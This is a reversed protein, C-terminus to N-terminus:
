GGQGHGEHRASAWGQSGSHLLRPAYRSPKRVNLDIVQEVGGDLVATTFGGQEEIPPPGSPRGGGGEEAVFKRVEDLTAGPRM